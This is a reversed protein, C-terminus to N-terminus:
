SQPCCPISYGIECTILNIGCMQQFLQCTAALWTRNLLRQEGQKLMDLVSGGSSAEISRQISEIDHNVAEAREDSDELIALIERAEAERGKSLLWRPSQAITLWASGM